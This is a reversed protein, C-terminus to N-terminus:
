FQECTVLICRFSSITQRPWAVARTDERSWRYSIIRASGVCDSRGTTFGTVQVFLGAQNRYDPINTRNSYHFLVSQLGIKLRNTFGEVRPVRKPSHAVLSSPTSM